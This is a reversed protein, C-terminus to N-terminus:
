DRQDLLQVFGCNSQVDPSQGALVSIYIGATTGVVGIASAIIIIKTIMSTPTDQGPQLAKELELKEDDNM